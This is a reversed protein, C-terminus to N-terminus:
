VLPRSSRKLQWLRSIQCLDAPSLFIEDRGLWSSIKFENVRQQRHSSSWSLSEAARRGTSSGRQWVRVVCLCGCCNFMQQYVLVRGPLRLTELGGCMWVTM